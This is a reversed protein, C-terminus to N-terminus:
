YLIFQFGAICPIPQICMTDKDNMIITATITTLLSNTENINATM